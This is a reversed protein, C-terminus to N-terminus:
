GVFMEVPVTTVNSFGDMAAQLAYVIMDQKQGAEKDIVYHSLGDPSVYIRELDTADIAPKPTYVVQPYQRSMEQRIPPIMEDSNPFSIEIVHKAQDPFGKIADVGEAVLATLYGARRQFTGDDNKKRLMQYLDNYSHRVCDPVEHGSYLISRDQEAQMMQGGNRKYTGPPFDVLLRPNGARDVSRPMKALAIRPKLPDAPLAETMALLKHVMNAEVEWASMEKELHEVFARVPLIEDKNEALYESMGVIWSANIKRRASYWLLYQALNKNEVAEEVKQAAVDQLKRSIQISNTEKNVAVLAARAQEPRLVTLGDTLFQDYQEQGDFFFATEGEPLGYRHKNISESHIRVLLNGATVSLDRQYALAEEDTEQEDIVMLEQILSARREHDLMAQALQVYIAGTAQEPQNAAQQLGLIDSPTRESM